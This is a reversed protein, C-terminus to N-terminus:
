GGLGHRAIFAMLAVLVGSLSVAVTCFDVVTRQACYVAVLAGGEHGGEGSEGYCGSWGVEM